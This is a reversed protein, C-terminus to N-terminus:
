NAENRKDLGKNSRCLAYLGTLDHGFLLAVGLITVSALASAGIGLLLVVINSHIGSASIATYASFSAICGILLSPLIHITQRIPGYDLLREINWANIIFSIFGAIVLGWAIGMGGYGSLSVLIAIGLFKKIVELLFFLDSRGLAMMAQLNLIHLPMMVAGLCLVQLLPVAATWQPGLLTLVFPEAIAALTFMAVANFVMSLRIADQLSKRMRSRDGRMQSFAPFAIQSIPHTVLGTVLLSTSEARNFQGLEATGFYKGILLTYAKSYIVDLLKAALLYGGFGFLQRASFASFRLKPRWGGLVWLLASTLLASAFGQWALAEVGFGTRALGVALLSSGVLASLKVVAMPRFALRKVLLARQVIGCGSIWVTASMIYTLRVLVDLEFFAAIFPAAAALSVAILTATGLCIWFVTANDEESTGQKQILALGFGSEILATTVGLFIALLAFTGFDGPTLLRALIAIFLVNVAQGVVFELTTWLTANAVSNPNSKSTM